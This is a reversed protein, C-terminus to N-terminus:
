GYNVRIRLRRSDMRRLSLEKFDDASYDACLSVFESRHLLYRRSCVACRAYITLPMRDPAINPSFLGLTQRGTHLISFHVSDCDCRLDGTLSDDDYETINILNNKVPLYM